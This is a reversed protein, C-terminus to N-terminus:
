RIMGYTARSSSVSSMSLYSRSKTQGVYAKSEITWAMHLVHLAFRLLGFWVLGFGLLTSNSHLPTSCLLRM